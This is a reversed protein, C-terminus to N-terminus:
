EAILEVSVVLEDPTKEWVILEVVWLVCTEGSIGHLVKAMATAAQFFFFGGEADEGPSSFIRVIWLSCCHYMRGSRGEGVAYILSGM